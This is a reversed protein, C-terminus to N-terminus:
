EKLRLDQYETDKDLRKAALEYQVTIICFYDFIADEIDTAVKMQRGQTEQVAKMYAFDDKNMIAQHRRYEQQNRM